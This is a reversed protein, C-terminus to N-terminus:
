EAHKMEMLIFKSPQDGVGWPDFTGDYVLLAFRDHRSICRWGLKYYAESEHGIDQVYMHQMSYNPRPALPAIPQGPALEGGM